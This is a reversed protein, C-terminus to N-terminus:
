KTFGYRLGMERGRKLAANAARVEPALSNGRKIAQDVMAKMSIVCKAVQTPTDTAL